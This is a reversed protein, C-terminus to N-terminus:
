RPGGGNEYRNQPDFLFTTRPMSQLLLPLVSLHRIPNTLPNLFSNIRAFLTRNQVPPLCRQVRGVVAVATALDNHQRAGGHV